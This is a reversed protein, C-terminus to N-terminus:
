RLAAFRSLALVLGVSAVAVVGVFAVAARKKQEAPVGPFWEGSFLPKRLDSAKRANTSVRPV